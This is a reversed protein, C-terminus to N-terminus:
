RQDGMFMGRFFFLVVRLPFGFCLPLRYIHACLKVRHGQEKKGM